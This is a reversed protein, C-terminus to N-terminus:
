VPPWVPWPVAAAAAAPWMLRQRLLDGSAARWPLVPAVAMLFLLCLVIPMTMTDFFPGGVTLSSGNVAEVFLPFVTGLLVVFAFACFLLNNALFAGQRSLADGAGPATSSTAGGRWCASAPPSSLASSCWCPRAWAGTM